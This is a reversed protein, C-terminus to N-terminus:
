PEGGDLVDEASEAQAAPASTLAAAGGLIVALLGRRSPQGERVPNM